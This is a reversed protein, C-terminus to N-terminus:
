VREMFDWRDYYKTFLRALNRSDDIARHSHGLPKLGERELATKFNVTHELDMIKAYQHKLSRAHKTWSKDIGHRLCDTRLLDPDMFGWSLLVYEEEGLWNRFHPIVERFFPSHDVDQQTISTLEICFESLEPHVVPRIFSDFTSIIQRTEDVKVAGIEIVEREGRIGEWCTAELDYIIYNM